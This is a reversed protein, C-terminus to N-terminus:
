HLNNHIFSYLKLFFFEYHYISKSVSLLNHELKSIENVIFHKINDYKKYKKLCVSLITTCIKSHDINYTLLKYLSDRISSIYLSINKIKKIVNLIKMFENELLTHFDNFHLALVSTYLNNNLKLIKQTITEDIDHEKAYQILISSICTSDLRDLHFRTQLDYTIKSISTSTCIFIYKTQREIINSIKKQHNKTFLQINRMVVFINGTVLSQNTCITNIYDVFETFLDKIHECDFVMCNFNYRFPIKNYTEKNTFKITDACKKKINSWLYCEILFYDQCYVLCHINTFLCNNKCYYTDFKDKFANLHFIDM